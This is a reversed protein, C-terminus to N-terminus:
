GNTFYKTFRIINLIIFALLFFHFVLTHIKKNGYFFLKGKTESEHAFEELM